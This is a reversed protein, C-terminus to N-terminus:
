ERSIALRIEDVAVSLRPEPQEPLEVFRRVPLIPLAERYTDDVQEQGFLFRFGDSEPPKSRACYLILDYKPSQDTVRLKQGLLWSKYAQIVYYSSDLIFSEYM